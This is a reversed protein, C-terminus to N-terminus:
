KDTLDLPKGTARLYDGKMQDWSSRKTSIADADHWCQGKSNVKLKWEYSKGCLHCIKEVEKTSGM